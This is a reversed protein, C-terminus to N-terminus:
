HRSETKLTHSEKHSPQSAIWQTVSSVLNPTIHDVTSILEPCYLISNM